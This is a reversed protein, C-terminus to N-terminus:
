KVNEEPLFPVPRWNESIMLKNSSDDNALKLVSPTCVEACEGHCNAELCGEKITPFSTGFKPNDLIIILSYEEGCVGSLILSCAQTCLRCGTCRDSQFFLNKNKM